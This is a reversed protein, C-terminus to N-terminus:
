NPTFEVKIKTKKINKLQIALKKYQHNSETQPHPKPSTSLPKANMLDFKARRPALLKVEITKGNQTLTAKRKNKSLTVKTTKTKVHAFWWVTSSDKLQINDTVILKQRNPLSFTRTIDKSGNLRYIGTMNITAKPSAQIQVGTTTPSDASWQNIIARANVNHNGIRSPNIVLTNAGEARNRYHNWRQGKQSYSWFGPLGYYDSPLMWIWREGLADFLFSGADMRGHSVNAKGGKLGVFIADDDWSSRMSAVEIKDYKKDRSVLSM